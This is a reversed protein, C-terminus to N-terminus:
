RGAKDFVFRGHGIGHQVAIEHLRFARAYKPKRNVCSAKM